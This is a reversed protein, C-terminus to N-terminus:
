FRGVEDDDAGEGTVPYAKASWNRGERKLHRGLRCILMGKSWSRVFSAALIVLEFCGVVQGQVM